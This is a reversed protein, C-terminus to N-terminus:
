MLIYYYNNKFKCLMKIDQSSRRKETISKILNFSYVAFYVAM